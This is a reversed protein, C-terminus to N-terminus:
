FGYSFLCVTLAADPSTGNAIERAVCEFVKALSKETAEMAKLGATDEEGEEVLMEILGKGTPDIINVPDGGAYLYKHLWKPDIPKRKTDLPKYEKPDRSMFRGTAPNYYRARLYYLGLDSDFQEGSCFSRVRNGACGARL